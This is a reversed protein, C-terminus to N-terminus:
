QYDEEGVQMFLVTEEKGNITITESQNICHFGIKEYTHIAGANRKLVRLMIRNLNLQQFGYELILRGAQAGIGKHLYQEEGIFIGFEATKAILDVDRLFVCGADEGDVEIVFQKVLGTEVRSHFYQLHSEATIPRQDIMNERVFQQNRWLVVKDTDTVALPRISVRNMPEGQLIGRSDINSKGPRRRNIWLVRNASFDGGGIVNGARCTSVALDRDQFFSRYYTQTVLESCSKSNSYPDFGNLRDTEKFHYSSDEGNEYVKDTTINIFSRV